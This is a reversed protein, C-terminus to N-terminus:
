ILVTPTEEEIELARMELVEGPASHAVAVVDPVERFSVTADYEYYRTCSKCDEDTLLM